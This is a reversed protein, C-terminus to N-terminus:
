NFKIAEDIVSFLGDKKNRKLYLYGVIAALTAGVGNVILDAMTDTLGSKQMNFGFFHDMTFEFIEWVAGIAMAFAFSFVAIMFPSAKVKHQRFMFILAIVGILGFGIASGAHLVSDWWWFREYYNQAEGLFLTAYMFIVLASLFGSPIRFSIKNSVYVAYVTLGFTIISVFVTTWDERFGGAIAAVILTVWMIYVYYPVKYKKKM